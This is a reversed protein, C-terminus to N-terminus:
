YHFKNIEIKKKILHFIINCAKALKFNTAANKFLELAEEARTSKSGFVSSM